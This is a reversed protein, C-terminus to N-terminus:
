ARGGDLTPLQADSDPQRSADREAQQLGDDLAQCNMQEYTRGRRAAGSGSPGGASAARTM